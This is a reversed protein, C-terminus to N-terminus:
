NGQAVYHLLKMAAEEEGHCRLTLMICQCLHDTCQSLQHGVAGIMLHGLAIHPSDCRCDFM